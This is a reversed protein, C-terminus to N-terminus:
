LRAKRLRKYYDMGEQALHGKAIQKAVSPMNTHEMEIRTGIRLQVPDFWSDPMNGKKLHIKCDKM